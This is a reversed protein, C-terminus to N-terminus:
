NYEVKLRYAAIAALLFGRSKSFVPSESTFLALM